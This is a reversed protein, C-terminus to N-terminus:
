SSASVSIVFVTVNELVTIDIAFIIMYQLIRQVMSHLWTAGHIFDATCYQAKKNCATHLILTLYLINAVIDTSSRLCIDCYIHIM